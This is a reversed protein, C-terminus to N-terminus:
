LDVTNLNDGMEGTSDVWELPIILVLRVMLRRDGASSLPMTWCLAAIISEQPLPMRIWEFARKQLFAAKDNIPLNNEAQCAVVCAQCGTCRDLDVVMGWKHDVRSTVM